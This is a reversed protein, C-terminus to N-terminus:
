NACTCLHLMQHSWTYQETVLHLMSCTSPCAIQTSVGRTSHPTVPAPSFILPPTPSHFTPSVHIAAPCSHILSQLHDPAQLFQGPPCLPFFLTHLQRGVQTLTAGLQTLDPAQPPLTHTLHLIARLLHFPPPRCRCTRTFHRSVEPERRASPRV